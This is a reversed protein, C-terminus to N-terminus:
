DRVPFARTLVVELRARGLQCVELVCLLRKSTLETATAVLDSPAPPPSSPSFGGHSLIDEWSNSHPQPYPCWHLNGPSAPLFLANMSVSDTLARLTLTYHGSYFPSPAFTDLKGCPLTDQLRGPQLGAAAMQVERRQPHFQRPLTERPALAVGLTPCQSTHLGVPAPHFIGISGAQEEDAEDEDEEDDDDEKQLFEMSADWLTFDIDAEEETNSEETPRLPLALRKRPPEVSGFLKRKAASGNQGSGSRARLRPSRPSLKVSTQPSSAELYTGSCGPIVPIWQTAPDPVAGRNDLGGKGSHSVATITAQVAFRRMERYQLREAERRLEAGSILAPEGVVARGLLQSEDVTQAWQIFRRVPRLRRYPMASHHGSGTCYVQTFTTSTLYQFSPLRDAATKVLQMNTCVVISMPHIKCHIEPQSTSFLQIMIPSDTTGDELQLWRYEWLEAGQSEKSKMREPRGVSVVLGIVDCTTGSSCNLLDLGCYFTYSIDPLLLQPFDEAQPIVSIHATPNRSNLSIEIDAEQSEGTRSLYSEKVRYQSLRLLQGPHLSRYWDICLTNWLVVSALGTRDAVELVTKYACECNRESKGYYVLRSKRLIRVFLIGKAVRSRSRFSQRIKQITVTPHLDEIDEETDSDTNSTSGPSSDRWMEGNYDQNNWLPLYSSRQARLPLLCPGDGDSGFWPLADIDTGCLADLAADEGADLDVALNVVGYTQCGGRQSKREGVVSITVNRLQCGCRLTNSEVLSNLSPHITVRLKCDGDSVTADYLNESSNVAQPFHIGFSLDKIYRDISILYLPERCTRTFESHSPVNGQSSLTRQFICGPRSSVAAAMKALVFVNCLM